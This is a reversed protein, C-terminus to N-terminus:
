RQVRLGPVLSKWLTDAMGLCGSSSLTGNQGAERTMAKSTGDIYYSQFLAQGSLEWLSVVEYEKQAEGLYWDVSPADHHSYRPFVRRCM